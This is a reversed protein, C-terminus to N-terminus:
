FKRKEILPVQMEIKKKWCYSKIRQQSESRRFTQTVTWHVWLVHLFVIKNWCLCKKEKGTNRQIEGWGEDQLMLCFLHNQPKFYAVYSQVCNSSAQDCFCQVSSGFVDM